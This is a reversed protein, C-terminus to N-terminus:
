DGEKAELRYASIGEPANFFVAMFPISKGPPVEMNILREGFRNSLIEEIEGRPATRLTEGPLVNGAYCSTEVITQDKDNLLAAHIRIGSKRSRGANVVQGKIVFLNGSKANPEYYGILNRVDFQPGPKGGRLWLSEMGPFWSRLLDQGGKTFGLYGGGGALALFLLVLAALSPRFRPSAAERREPPIPPPPEKAPPTEPIPPPPAPEVPQAAAERLQAEFDQPPLPTAEETAEPFSTVPLPAEPAELSSPPIVPEPRLSGSIDLEQEQSGESEKGYEKKLLDLTDADSVMFDPLPSPPPTEKEVAEPPTLLDTKEEPRFDVALDTLKGPETEGAPASEEERGAALFKEFALDIEDKDFSPVGESPPEPLAAEPGPSEPSAAAADKPAEPRGEATERVASRLDFTDRGTEAAPAEVPKLVVIADGCRRCRVRAGRGKIRDEDLRFKTRCSPCEIIM